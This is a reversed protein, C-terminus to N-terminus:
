PATGQEAVQPAPALALGKTPSPMVDWQKPPLTRARLRGLRWATRGEAAHAPAMTWRTEIGPAGGDGPTLLLGIPAAGTGAGTEAALHLRRVPTLAPPEPLDAVVLPVTGSRLAEEMTWLLDEPRKADLFVLRGPDIWRSVAPAHLRDPLWAPTIWFM